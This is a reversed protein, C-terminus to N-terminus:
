NRIKRKTDITMSKVQEAVYKALMDCEINVKDGVTLKGLTTKKITDEILSVAITKAKLRAITLSVGDLAVSGQPCFYTFLNNPPVITILTNDGEKEIEKIVGVGDVHGFVLHGGIEEGLRLSAEMNVIEGVKKEGLSTKRLTEPMVEFFIKNNNKKLVSLCVGSTCISNGLKAKNYITKNEIGLLYGEAKPEISSIKGITQIIGSFM